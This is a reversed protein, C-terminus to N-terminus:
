LVIYGPIDTAKVCRYIKMCISVNQSQCITLVASSLITNNRFPYRQLVFGGWKRAKYKTIIVYEKQIDKDLEHIQSM